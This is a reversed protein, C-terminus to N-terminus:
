DLNLLLFKSCKYNWNDLYDVRKAVGLEVIIQAARTEHILSCLLNMQIATKWPCIEKVYLTLKVEAIIKLLWFQSLNSGLAM